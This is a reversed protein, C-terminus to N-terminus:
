AGARLYDRMRTLVRNLFWSARRYSRTIFRPAIMAWETALLERALWPYKHFLAQMPAASSDIMRAQRITRGLYFPNSPFASHAHTLLATAAAGTREPTARGARSLHDYLELISEVIPRSNRNSRMTHSLRNNHHHAYAGVPFDCRHWEIDGAKALELMWLYDDYLVVDERWRNEKITTRRFVSGQTFGSIAMSLFAATAYDKSDPLRFVSRRGDPWINELPAVCLDGGQTEIMETQRSADPYLYDDDDLFRVYKGRANVLGHNRAACANAIRLRLWQVRPDTKYKERVLEWSADPGNPVVLIEVDGDPAAGLASDIARGLVKVRDFTPIVVTLLPAKMAFDNHGYRSYTRSAM